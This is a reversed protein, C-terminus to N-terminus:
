QSGTVYLTLQYTCGEWMQQFFNAIYPTEAHVIM